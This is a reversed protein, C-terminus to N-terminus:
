RKVEQEWPRHTKSRRRNGAEGGAPARGGGGGSARGGGTWRWSGDGPSRSPASARVKAGPDWLLPLLQRPPPLRQWPPPPWWSSSV